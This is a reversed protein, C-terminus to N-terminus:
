SCKWGRAISFEGNVYNAVSEGVMGRSTESMLCNMSIQRRFSALHLIKHDIKLVSKHQDRIAPCM